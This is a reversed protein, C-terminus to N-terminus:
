LREEAKERATVLHERVIRSAEPDNRLVGSLSIAHLAVAQPVERLLARTKFDLKNERCFADIQRYSARRMAADVPSRSRAPRPAPQRGPPSSSINGMQSEIQVVRMFDRELGRGTAAYGRMLTEVAIGRNPSSRLERCLQEYEYRSLEQGSIDISWLSAELHRWVAGKHLYHRHIRRVMEVATPYEM